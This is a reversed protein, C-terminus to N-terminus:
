DLARLVAERMVEIPPDAGIWRALSAAGQYVLMGVGDVTRLGLARARVLLATVRPRYVLDVVAASPALELPIAAAFDEAGPGLTGSSAQVILDAGSLARALDAFTTARGRGHLKAVDEAADLRRAVVVVEHAEALAVVSARAAGGAGLVVVRAGAITVDNEALSRSLGLADTNSGVWRGRELALTNVAGLARAADDMSALCAIVRTKHPLTVNLGVFGENALRALEAGLDDPGVDIAEYSVDSRGLADLAARQMLPSLSHTIPRGIVGLRM